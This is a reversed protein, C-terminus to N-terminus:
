QYYSLNGDDSESIFFDAKIIFMISIYGFLSQTPAVLGIIMIFAYLEMVFHTIYETSHASLSTHKPNIIRM